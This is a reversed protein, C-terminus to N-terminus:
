EPSQIRKYHPSVIDFCWIELVDCIEHIVTICKVTLYAGSSWTYVIIWYQLVDSNGFIVVWITIGILPAVQWRFPHFQQATVHALMLETSMEVFLVMALDM